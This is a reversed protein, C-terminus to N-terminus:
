GEGYAAALRSAMVVPISPGVVGLFEESERHYMKWFDSGTGCSREVNAIRDATKLICARRQGLIKRYIDANREKRTSGIGTVRWVTGAIPLGYMLGITEISTETDEIADHLWACAVWFGTAFGFDHLVDEVAQLHATYPLGGVWLQKAHLETAFDRVDPVPQKMARVGSGWLFLSAPPTVCIEEKREARNLRLIAILRSMGDREDLAPPASLDLRLFGAM